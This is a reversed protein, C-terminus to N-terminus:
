APIPTPASRPWTWGVQTALAELLVLLVLLPLLWRRLGRWAVPRPARWVDSLDVREV